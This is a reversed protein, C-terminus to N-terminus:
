HGSGGGKLIKAKRHFGVRAMASRDRRAFGFYHDETVVSVGGIGSFWRRFEERRARVHFDGNQHGRRVTVQVCIFRAHHHALDSGYGPQRFKLAGAQNAVETVEHAIRWINTGNAPKLVAAEGFSPFQGIDRDGGRRRIAMKIDGLDLNEFLCVLGKAKRFVIQVAIEMLQSSLVILGRHDCPAAGRSWRPSMTKLEWSISIATCITKLFALPRTHRKSFRSRPSMLIAMRRRPPSRSIPWNGENPSAATRLGALPVFM